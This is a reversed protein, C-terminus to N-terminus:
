SSGKFKAILICKCNTKTKFIDSKKCRFNMVSSSERLFRYPMMAKLKSWAMTASTGLIKFMKHLKFVHRAHSLIVSITDPVTTVTHLSQAWPWQSGVPEQAQGQEGCSDVWCPVGVGLLRWKWQWVSWGWWGSWHLPSLSPSGFGQLQGQLTPHELLYDTNDTYM